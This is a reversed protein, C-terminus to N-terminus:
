LETLHNKETLRMEEMLAAKLRFRSYAAVNLLLM